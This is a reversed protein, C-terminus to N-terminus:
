LATFWKKLGEMSISINRRLPIKTSINHIKNHLANTGLQLLLSLNFKFM